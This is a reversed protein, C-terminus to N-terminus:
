DPLSSPRCTVRLTTGTRIEESEVRWRMEKPPSPWDSPAAAPLPLLRQITDQEVLDAICRFDALPQVSVTTSDSGACREAILSRLGLGDSKIQIFGDTAPFHVTDCRPTPSPSDSPSPAGTPTPSPSASPAPSSGPAPSASTRIPVSSAARAASVPTPSAAAAPSPSATETPTSSPMATGTPAPARPAPTPSPTAESAAAPVPMVAAPTPAPMSEPTPESTPSPPAETSEEISPVPSTATGEDPPAPEGAARSEDPLPAADAPESGIPAPIEAHPDGDQPDPADPTEDTVRAPRPILQGGTLAAEPNVPVGNLRVEFHLHVGFSHGTDGAVGLVTGREIREGPQFSPTERLHGYISTVGAGHDLMVYYGYGCCPDGGAAIVTGERAALVLGMAEAPAIDIGLPHRDDFVSTIAGHLPWAFGLASAPLVPMVRRPPPTPPVPISPRGAATHFAYSWRGAPLDELQRAVEDPNAGATLRDIPPLNPPVTTAATAPAIVVDTTESSGAGDSTRGAHEAGHQQSPGVISTLGIVAAGVVVLVGASVAIGPSHPRLRVLLPRLKPHFLM